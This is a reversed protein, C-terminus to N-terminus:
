PQQLVDGRIYYQIRQKDLWEWERFSNIEVISAAKEILVSGTKPISCWISRLSISNRERIKQFIEGYGYKGKKMSMVSVALFIKHVFESM